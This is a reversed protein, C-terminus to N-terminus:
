RPSEMGTGFQPIETPSTSNNSSQDAFGSVSNDNGLTQLAVNSNKCEIGKVCFNQQDINQNKHGRRSEHTFKNPHKFSKGSDASGKAAKSHAYSPTPALSTGIVLISSAIASLMFIGILLKTCNM